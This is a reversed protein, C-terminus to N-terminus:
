GEVPVWGRPPSQAPCAPHGSCAFGASTIAHIYNMRTALRQNQGQITVSGDAPNVSLSPPRGGYRAWALADAIRNADRTTMMGPVQLRVTHRDPWQVLDIRNGLLDAPRSPDAKLDVVTAPYGAHRLANLISERYRPDSLRGGESYLVTQSALDIRCQHRLDGWEGMLERQAANTVLIVDQSGTMGQVSLDLQRHEIRFCSTVVLVLAFLSWTIQRM